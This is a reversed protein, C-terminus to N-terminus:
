ANNHSLTLRGNPRATQSGHVAAWWAGRDMSIELCSDQLPATMGKEPSDEQGLTCVWTEQVAPLNRVTQARLSAGQARVYREM